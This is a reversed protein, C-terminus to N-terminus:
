QYNIQVDEWLFQELQDSQSGDAGERYGYQIRQEFIKGLAKAVVRGLGDYFVAETCEGSTVGIARNDRDYGYELATVRYRNGQAM